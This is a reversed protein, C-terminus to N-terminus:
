FSAADARTIPAGDRPTAMLCPQRLAPMAKTTRRPVTPKDLRRAMAKDLPHGMAKDRPRPEMDRSRRHRAQAKNRLLGAKKQVPLHDMPARRRVRSMPDTPGMPIFAAAL